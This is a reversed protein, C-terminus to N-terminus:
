QWMKSDIWPDDGYWPFHQLINEAKESSCFYKTEIMKGNRRQSIYISDNPYIPSDSYLTCEAILQISDPFLKYLSKTNGMLGWVTYGRVYGRHTDPAINDIVNDAYKYILEQKFKDWMWIYAAANPKVGDPCGIVLDDCGDQNLDMKKAEGDFSYYGEKNLLKWEDSILKYFFIEDNYIIFGYHFKHLTTIGFTFLIDKKCTHKLESSDKFYSLSDELQRLSIKQSSFPSNMEYPDYAQKHPFASTNKKKGSHCSATLFFIFVFFINKIFKMAPFTTILIIKEGSSFKPNFIETSKKQLISHSPLIFTKL